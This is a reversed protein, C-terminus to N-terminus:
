FTLISKAKRKDAMPDGGARALKRNDLAVSRAEALTVLSPSGLGLECRKGRIVIRQVWFRSGNSDVRLYLGHGDFYKGPTALTKVLQATLAKEPRRTLHQAM